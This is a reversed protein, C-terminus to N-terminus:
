PWTKLKNPHSHMIYERAIQTQFQIAGQVSALMIGKHEPAVIEGLRSVFESIDELAKYAQEPTITM